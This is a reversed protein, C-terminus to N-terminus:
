RRQAIARVSDYKQAPQALLTAFLLRWARLASNKKPWPAATQGSVVLREYISAEYEIWGQSFQRCYGRFALKNVRFDTKELASVLSASTFFNLHRPADLMLWTVGATKCGLAENNPVECIFYGGPRLLQYVNSLAAIPDLCHELVHSLVVADFQQGKVQPPITEATGQYVPLGLNFANAQPDTEIGVVSYGASNFRKLLRGSGSGIDLITQIETKPLQILDDFITEKESELLYAIKLRLRDLLNPKVSLSATKRSDTEEHSRHTYYGDVQYFGAIETTNPRPYVMGYKSQHSYFIDGYTNLQGNVPDIPMQLWPNMEEGSIPCRPAGFPHSM